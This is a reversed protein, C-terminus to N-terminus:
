YLDIEFDHQIFSVFQLMIYLISIKLFNKGLIGLKLRVM